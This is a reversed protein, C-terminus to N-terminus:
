AAQEQIRTCTASQKQPVLGVTPKVQSLRVGPRNLSVGLRILSVGMQTLSVGLRNLSVGMQTLSVGLRTGRFRDAVRSIGGLVLAAEPQRRLGAVTVKDRPRVM